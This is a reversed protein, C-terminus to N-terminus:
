NHQKILSYLIEHVDFELIKKYQPKSGQLEHVYYAERLLM